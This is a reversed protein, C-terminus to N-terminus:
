NLRRGLTVGVGVLAVAGVGVLAVLLPTDLTSPLRSVDSVVGSGGSAPVDRQLPVSASDASVAIGEANADNLRTDESVLAVDASTDNEAVVAFTVTAFTPANSGEAESQTFFAWGADNNVNTVPDGYDVGDISKVTLVSPDFTLNAQYGAVNRADTALTVTVTGDDRVDSSSLALKADSSQALGSQVVAPSALVSLVLLGVIFRTTHRTRTM